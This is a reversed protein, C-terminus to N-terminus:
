NVIAKMYSSCRKFKSKLPGHEINTHFSRFCPSRIDFLHMCIQVAGLNANKTTTKQQEQGELRKSRTFINCDILVYRMLLSLIRNIRCNKVCKLPLYIIQIDSVCMVMKGYEYLKIKKRMVNTNNTWKFSMRVGDLGNGVHANEKEIYFTNSFEIAGIEM